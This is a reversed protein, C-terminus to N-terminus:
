LLRMSVVRGDAARGLHDAPANKDNTQQEVRDTTRLIDLEDFETGQDPYQGADYRTYRSGAESLTIQNGSNKMSKMTGRGPRSTAAMVMRHLDGDGPNGLGDHMAQAIGDGPGADDELDPLVLQQNGIGTGSQMGKKGQFGEAQEVEVQHAM